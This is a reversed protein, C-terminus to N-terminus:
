NSASNRRRRGGRKGGGRPDPSRRGGKAAPERKSGKGAGPSRSPRGSRAPRDSTSKATVHSPTDGVVEIKMRILREISQLYPLEERDCFSIATGSAGARATRGIRHVHSEADRAIDYNFVHTVGDVDIGRAAIDTAVLVHLAGSRFRDLTRQRANQSKNGHIAEAGTGARTLQKAVRDAGHKTRTFVIARGISTTEMLNVLLAPKKPKDVHYVSQDILEVVPTEAKLTVQAPDNLLADALRRIESPMTASFLLTQRREPLEAIIKRIDPMFGMDLMRDAEDLVLTQVGSLDCHGQNVLDLLRGPTAVIVDVGRRLSQVQPNQGVGGFIVTGTVGTDRGYTKFSAAIQQALERTPALVLSRARQPRGGVETSLRHLIPLAFAATKGTGTQACGLVDRGAVGHPITQAQIPTAIQYGEGAVAALIPKSLGLESFKM